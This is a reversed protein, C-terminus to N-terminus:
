VNKESIVPAFTTVSFILELSNFTVIPSFGVTFSM